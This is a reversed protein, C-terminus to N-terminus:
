AHARRCVACHEMHRARALVAEYWVMAAHIFNQERRPFSLSRDFLEQEANTRDLLAQEVVKELADYLECFM